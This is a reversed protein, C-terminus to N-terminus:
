GASAGAAGNGPDDDDDDDASDGGAADETDAGTGADGADVDDASEGGGDDAAPGAGAAGAEGGVQVGGSSNMQRPDCDLKIGRKDLEANFRQIEDLQAIPDEGLERVMQAWTMAGNRVLRQYALGEKDPELIPMPPAAWEATPVTSWGQMAAALEMVWCWVGGCLQPILMHERWEYVNQWHALRGIRASSFNVQSLDGSLDEYTVGLSVAIRRLNRTTFTTDQARPPMAFSINKGPPLYAIHGPELQEIRKGDKNTVNGIQPTGGADEETVFASFCAAIKQQLLEADEYDDFDKLKAIAAALWPVGRTQQPRDVRYIHLVRDAPVRTSTLRMTALRSGPHSGFLYYAVRRGQTDFEVGQIIPGGGDGTLGDRLTDIYDPELVQLRMPVPLGDRTAAPQRVILVEGSEAVCEMALRQIGYFNLRGDFDCATSRAWAKWIRLAAKGRLRSRDDPKPVIGWGVTNNVIAQIGRRAWGNNRRLDRSLERLAALAPGNAANADSRSRRWGSTRRGGQAAEYHRQALQVTARARIRRVGWSPAIGTLFRDWWTVRLENTTM